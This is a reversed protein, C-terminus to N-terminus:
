DVPGETATQKLSLNRKAEGVISRLDDRLPKAKDAVSLVGAATAVALRRGHTRVKRRLTDIKDAAGEVPCAIPQRAEAVINNMGEKLKGSHNKMEDTISLIGRAALVAASRLGHRIPPFSLTLAAGTILLATPSTKSLLRIINM